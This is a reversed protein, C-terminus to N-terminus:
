VMFLEQRHIGFWARICQRATRSFEYFEEEERGFAQTLVIALMSRQVTTTFASDSEIATQTKAAM